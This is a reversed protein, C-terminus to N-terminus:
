EIKRVSHNGDETVYLFKGDTTFQRPRRFTASTGTGNAFGLIGSGAVTTVLGTAIVIKRIRNSPTVESIYLNIGDTIIGVPEQFGAAIGTGDLYTNDGSGAITTVVGTKIEIKRIRRNTQDSIYLNTGDTTIGSPGNFTAAAGAGDSFGFNGSGALTTVVGSSIVIKRIISSSTVYLNTGDTTIGNPSSFTAATGTGDASGQVGSGALTSVVGTSIVIKRIKHNSTDAVYLNTGDSTIGGVFGFTAATGIGDASGQVGGALTSVVGTSIVIKRIRRNGSDAVYLNTGDTTIGEPGAFSAAIGTGDVSGMSGTGAITSVLGKLSLDKGCTQISGGMLVSCDKPASPETRQSNLLILFLSDRQNTSKDDSKCGSIMVLLLYVIALKKLQKNINM